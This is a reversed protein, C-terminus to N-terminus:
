PFEKAPARRALSLILLAVALGALGANQLVLGFGAAALAIVCFVISPRLLNLAAAALAVWGFVSNNYLVVVLRFTRCLWTELGAQCALSVPAHEIALYRLYIAYGVSLFGVTMLLYIQRPTPQFLTRPSADSIGSPNLTM